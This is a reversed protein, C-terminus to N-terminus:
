PRQRTKDVKLRSYPQQQALIKLKSYADHGAAATSILQQESGHSSGL